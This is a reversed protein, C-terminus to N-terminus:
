ARSPRPPPQRQQPKPDQITAPDVPLGLKQLSSKEREYIPLNRYESEAITPAVYLALGFCEDLQKDTCEYFWSKKKFRATVSNHFIMKKGNDGMHFPKHAVVSRVRNMYEAWGLANLVLDSKEKSINKMPMLDRILKALDGVRPEGILLRAVDDDIAMMKRINSHLSIEIGSCGYVFRGVAEHHKAQPVSLLIDQLSAM